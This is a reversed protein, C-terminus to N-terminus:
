GQAEEASDLQVGAHRQLAWSHAGEASGPRM